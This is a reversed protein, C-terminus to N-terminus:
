CVCLVLLSVFFFLFVYLPLSLFLHVPRNIVESLQKSFVLFGLATKIAQVDFGVLLSFFDSSELKNRKCNNCNIATLLNCGILLSAVPQNIVHIGIIHIYIIDYIIYIMNCTYWNSPDPKSILMKTEFMRVCFSVFYLYLM